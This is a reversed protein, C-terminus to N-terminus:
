DAGRADRRQKAKSYEGGALEAGSVGLEPDQGREDEQALQERDLDV